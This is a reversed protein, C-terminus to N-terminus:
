EFDRYILGVESELNGESTFPGGLSLSARTRLLPARGLPGRCHAEESLFAGNRCGEEDM